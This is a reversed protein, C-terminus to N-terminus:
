QNIHISKEHFQMNNPFLIARLLLSMYNWMRLNWPFHMFCNTVWRIDSVRIPYTGKHPFYRINFEGWRANTSFCPRPLTVQKHKGKHPQWKELVIENILCLNGNDNSKACMCMITIKTKWFTHKSIPPPSSSVAQAMVYNSPINTMMRARHCYREPTMRPAWIHENLM